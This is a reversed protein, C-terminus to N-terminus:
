GPGRPRRCRPRGRPSPLLSPRRLARGGTPACRTRRGRRVALGVPTRKRIASERRTADDVIPSISSSTPSRSTMTSSTSTRGERASLSPGASRRRGTRTPRYAYSLLVYACDASCWDTPVEISSDYFALPVQPLEQEIERRRQDDPVLAEMVSEGLWWSWPALVGNAALDRLTSLFDDGARFTGDCPLVSADVFMVQRLTSQLQAAILPPVAGAGSHGVVATEEGSGAAHVADAAFAHSSGTSAAPVLNPVIVEHGHHRLADAVWRWTSPGVVPSHVLVFRMGALM